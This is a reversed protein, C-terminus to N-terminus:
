RGSMEDICAACKCKMRLEYPDIKKLKDNDKIVVVGEIGDYNVIPHSSKGSEIEKIM